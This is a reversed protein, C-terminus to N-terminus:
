IKKVPQISKRISLWWHCLLPYHIVLTWDRPPATNHTNHWNCKEWCLTMSRDNQKDYKVYYGKHVPICTTTM